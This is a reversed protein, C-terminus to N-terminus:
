LHAATAEREEEKENLKEKRYESEHAATGYRKGRERSPTFPQISRSAGTGPQWVGEEEEEEKTKTSVLNYPFSSTRRRAIAVWKKGGKM